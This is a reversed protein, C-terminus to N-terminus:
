NENAQEANDAMQDETVLVERPKSGEHPGVIGKVEMEDVIRAARNYGIRFRRQLLSISATQMDVVLDVADNYLEDESEGAETKPEDKPIMEEVYNAEQQDKVFQVVAEVEEDSIFAGQVRTAKNAGMPQFLMDGRGLLKEAGNSDLITRSDTGSSVAFAIRSPVNAKIIGTIVDVSPRQTALIM